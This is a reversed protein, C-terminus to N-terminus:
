GMTESGMKHRDREIYRGRLSRYCGDLRMKRTNQMRAYARWAGAQQTRCWMRTSDDCEILITWFLHEYYAFVHLPPVVYFIVNVSIHHTVIAETGWASKKWSRAMGMCFIVVNVAQVRVQNIIYTIQRGHDTNAIQRGKQSWHSFIITSLSLSGVIVVLAITV